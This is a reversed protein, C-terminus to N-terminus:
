LVAVGDPTLLERFLITKAAFYREMTGHYDLHDQTVNTLAAARFRCGAVRGQDLAHSTVEMVVDTSGAARMQGLLTQLLLAGPTTNPAPVERGGYRYNVTSVVGTRRGAAAFIAELLYTTTTKGNTGTIGTLAMA